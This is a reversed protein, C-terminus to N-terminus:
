RRMKAKPQPQMVVLTTPLETNWTSSEGAVYTAVVANDQAVVSRSLADPVINM